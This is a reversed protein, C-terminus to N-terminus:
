LFVLEPRTHTTRQQGQGADAQKNRQHQPLETTRVLLARQLRGEVAAQLLRCDVIGTAPDVDLAHTVAPDTEVTMEQLLPLHQQVVRDM